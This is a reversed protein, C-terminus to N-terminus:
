SQGVGGFFKRLYYCMDSDGTTHIVLPASVAFPPPPPTVNQPANWGESKQNYLSIRVPVFAFHSLLAEEKRDSPETRARAFPPIPSSSKEVVKPPRLSISPRGLLHQPASPM